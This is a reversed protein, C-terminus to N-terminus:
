ADTRLRAHHHLARRHHNGEGAPHRSSSIFGGSRPNVVATARSKTSSFPTRELDPLEPPTYTPSPAFATSGRPGWVGHERPLPPVRAPLPHPGRPAGRRTKKPTRSGGPFFLFKSTFNTWNRSYKKLLKESLLFLLFCPVPM